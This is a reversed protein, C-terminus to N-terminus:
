GEGGGTVAARAWLAMEDIVLVCMAGPGNPACMMELDFQQVLKGYYANNANARAHAAHADTVVSPRHAATMASPLSRSGAGTLLAALLAARQSSSRLRSAHSRPAFQETPTHRTRSESCPRERGDTSFWWEFM